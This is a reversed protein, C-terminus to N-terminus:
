DSISNSIRLTRKLGRGNNEGWGITKKWRKTIEPKRKKELVINLSEM